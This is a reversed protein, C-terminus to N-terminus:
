YIKIWNVSDPHETPAFAFWIGIHQMPDSPNKTNWDRVLFEGCSKVLDQRGEAYFGYLANYYKYLRHDYYYALNNPAPTKWNLRKRNILNFERGSQTTVAVVPWVLTKPLPSSYMTWTQRIRLLGTVYYASVPFQIQGVKYNWKHLVNYFVRNYVDAAILSLVLVGASVYAARNYWPVPPITLAATSTTKRKPIWRFKPVWGLNPKFTSVSILAGAMVLPLEGLNMFIFTTLHFGLLVLVMWNRTWRILLLPLALCEMALVAYCMLLQISGPPKALVTGLGNTINSYQAILSIATGNLWESGPTIKSIGSATYILGIQFIYGFVLVRPTPGKNPFLMMWILLASYIDTCFGPYINRNALSVQFILSFLAFLRTNKGFALGLYSVLGLLFCSTLIFPSNGIYFISFHWPEVSLTNLGPPLAGGNSYFLDRNVFRVLWDYLLAAVILYKGTKFNSERLSFWPGAEPRPLYRRLVTWITESPKEANSSKEMNSPKEASLKEPSEVTM